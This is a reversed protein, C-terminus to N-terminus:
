RDSQIEEEKDYKLSIHVDKYKNVLVNVDDINLIYNDRLVIKRVKPFESLVKPVKILNNDSFDLLTLNPLKLILEKISTIYGEFDEQYEFGSIKLGIVQDKEIFYGVEQVADSIIQTFELITYDSVLRIEELIEIETESAYSDALIEKINTTKIWVPVCSPKNERLDLLKLNPFNILWKPLKKIYCNKVILKKLGKLEKIGDPLTKIYNDSIDLIELSECNKLYIIDKSLDYREDWENLHIERLLGNRFIILGNNIIIENQYQEVLLDLIDFNVSFIDLYINIFELYAENEIFIVNSPLQITNSYKWKKPCLRNKYGTLSVFELTPHDLIWTPLIDLSSGNLDLIKLKTLNMLSQPIEIFDTNAIKIFQLYSFSSLKQIFDDQTYESTEIFGIVRNDQIKFGNTKSEVDESIYDEEYPDYFDWGAFYSILSNIDNEIVIHTDNPIEVRLGNETRLNVVWKPLIKYYNETVSLLKLGQLNNISKLLNNKTEPLLLQSLLINELTIEVIKGNNIVINYSRETEFGDDFQDIDYFCLLLQEFIKEEDPLLGEISLIQTHNAFEEACSTHYNETMDTNSLEAKCYICYLKHDTARINNNM